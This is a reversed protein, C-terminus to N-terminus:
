QNRDYTFGECNEFQRKANSNDFESCPPATPTTNPDQSFYPPPADYRSSDGYGHGQRLCSDVAGKAKEINELEEEHKMHFALGGAFCVLSNVGLIALGWVPLVPYVACAVLAALSVVGVAFEINRFTKFKSDLYDTKEEKRAVKRSSNYWFCMGAHFAVCVVAAVIGLALLKRSDESEKKNEKRGQHTTNGNNINTINNVTTHGRGGFLSDMWCQLLLYDWFDLGRNHVHIHTIQSGTPQANNGANYQDNRSGTDHRNSSNPHTFEEYVNKFNEKSWTLNPTNNCYQLLGEINNNNGLKKIYALAYRKLVSDSAVM